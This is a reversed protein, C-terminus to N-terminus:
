KKDRNIKEQTQLSFYLTMLKLVRPYRYTFYFGPATSVVCLSINGDTKATTLYMHLYSVVLMTFQM